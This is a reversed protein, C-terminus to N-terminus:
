STRRPHTHTPTQHIFQEHLDNLSLTDWIAHALKLRNEETNKM